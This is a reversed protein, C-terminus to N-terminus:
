DRLGVLTEIVEAIHLLDNKEGTLLDRTTITRAEKTNCVQPVIFMEDRITVDKNFNYMNVFGHMMGMPGTRSHIYVPVSDNEVIRLKACHGHKSKKELNWVNCKTDSGITITGKKKGYDGICLKPLKKMKRIPIARCWKKSKPFMYMAPEDQDLRYLLQFSKQAPFKLNVSVLQRQNDRDYTWKFHEIISVVPSTAIGEIQFQDPMCNDDDRKVVRYDLSDDNDFDFDLLLPNAMSCLALAAILLAAFASSISLKM